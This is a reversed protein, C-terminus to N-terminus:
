KMDGYSVMRSHSDSNRTSGQLRVIAKPIRARVGMIEGSDTLRLGLPESEEVSQVWKIITPIDSFIVGTSKDNPFTLTTEKEMTNLSKDSTVELERWNDPIDTIM